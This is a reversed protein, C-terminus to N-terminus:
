VQLESRLYQAYCINERYHTGLEEDLRYFSRSVWFLILREM